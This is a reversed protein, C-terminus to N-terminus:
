YDRSCQCAFAAVHDIMAVTAPPPTTLRPLPNPCNFTHSADPISLLKGNVGAAEALRESADAPITQDQQGHIFCMPVTISAAAKIPDFADPDHEVEKLWDAGVRLVQGTRSSPSELYGLRRLMDCTDTDLTVAQDPSAATVVGTPQVRHDGDYSRAATLLVSVGGRSHGFWIMPLRRAVEAGPILGERVAAAVTQLDFIQRGWTDREFLDARQFTDLKDTMGSHSFNFRIAVLGARALEMAMRPFFGYDKYGKFGHCLIVVGLPTGDPVHTHGIIPQSDSGQLTWAHM